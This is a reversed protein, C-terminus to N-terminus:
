RGDLLTSIVFSSMFLLYYVNYSYLALHSSLFFEQNAPTVFFHLASVIDSGDGVLIFPWYNLFVLDMKNISYPGLM